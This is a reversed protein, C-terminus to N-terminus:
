LAITLLGYIEFGAIVLHLCGSSCPGTMIVRFISFSPETSPTSTQPVNWTGVGLPRNITQDNTHRTLTTWATGDNSGRLEWNRLFNGTNRSHRISYKSPRVSGGCPRLDVQWWSNPEHATYNPINCDRDLTSQPSGSCTGSWSAIVLGSTHPNIHNPTHQLPHHRPDPTTGLWWMIGRRDWNCNCTFERTVGCSLSSIARHCATSNLLLLGYECAKLNETDRTQLSDINQSQANGYSDLASNMASQICSSDQDSLTESIFKQRNLREVTETCINQAEKKLLEIRTRLQAQLKREVNDAEAIFSACERQASVISQDLTVACVTASAPVTRSDIDGHTLPSCVDVRNLPASAGAM